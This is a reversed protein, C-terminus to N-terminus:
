HRRREGSSDFIDLLAGMMRDQTKIVLANANYLPKDRSLNVLEGALDVNSGPQGDPGIAGPTTDQTTGSVAVGGGSLEVLDVRSSKFGPTNSNAINNAGVALQTQAAQMGSLAIAYVDSM